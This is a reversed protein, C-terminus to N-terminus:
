RALIRNKGRKKTVKGANTTCDVGLVIGVPIDRQVTVPLGNVNVNGCINSGFYHFANYGDELKITNPGSGLYIKGFLNNKISIRISDHPNETPRSGVYIPCTFSLSEEHGPILGPGYVPEHNCMGLTDAIGNYTFLYGVSDIFNNEIRITMNTGSGGLSAIGWTLTNVITNDHIYPHAYAGISIGTGQNTVGSMGSHKIINHDVEGLAGMAQSAVQIGGRGTSDLINNYIHIYGIRPPKPYTIIGSGPPCETPRPDFNTPSNDPSTDGIYFGEHGTHVIKTDHVILSDMVYPYNLSDACNEGSHFFGGQGVNHCYIHDYEVVKSRYEFSMGASGVNACSDSNEMKFGYFEGVSGTGTWHVYTSNLLRTSAVPVQGGSNIITVPCTYSTGHIGDLWLPGWKQNSPQVRFSITDGGTYLKPNGGSTGLISGPYAIVVGGGGDFPIEYRNHSPCNNPSAANVNIDVADTSAGGNLSLQFVYTGQVLGTVTTNVATPTTITFTTPGSIKTWLYSTITGTSASGSLSVSSTPLTISQNAGANAVPGAAANVTITVDSTATQLDTQTVTLRFVHTGQTLATVGTSASTPATISSGAPGSLHTWSYGTIAGSGATGSGSLTVSSTPLTITQPSGANATPSTVTSLTTILMWEYINMNSTVGQFTFNERYTTKYFFDWRGHGFTYPPNGTFRGFGAKAVNMQNILIRTNDGHPDNVQDGFGWGRTSDRVITNCDTQSPTGNAESMPVFAAIRYRPTFPNGSNNDIHSSYSVIGAGGASLGTLYIRNSDVRYNAVMYRIIWDLQAGFTSWGSGAAQPSLVIPEYSQGDKPNTFTNPWGAHEILYAPGGSTSNNFINSLPPNSEGMGHLFIILPYRTSTSNYSTPKYLLAQYQQGCSQCIPVNIVTQATQSFGRLGVFLWLLILLRKM